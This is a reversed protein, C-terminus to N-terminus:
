EKTSHGEKLLNNKVLRTRDHARDRNDTFLTSETFGELGSVNRAKWKYMIPAIKEKTWFVANTKKGEKNYGFVTITTIWLEAVLLSDPFFTIGDKTQL